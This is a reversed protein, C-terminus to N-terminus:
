ADIVARTQRRAEDRSVYGLQRAEREAVASENVEMECLDFGDRLVFRLM